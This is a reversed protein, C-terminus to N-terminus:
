KTSKIDEIFEKDPAIAYKKLSYEMIEKWVPASVSSAFKSGVQPDDIMVVLVFQPNSVPAFGAMFTRNRTKDYTWVFRNLEPKYERKEKDMTGTKAAVRFRDIKAKRGTGREVVQELMLAIAKAYEENFRREGKNVRNPDKNVYVSKYVGFNAIVMYARALQMATAKVGYGYGFQAHDLKSFGKNHIKLVGSPVDDSLGLETSVGIGLQKFWHEIEEPKLKQVIKSSAVNSSSVLTEMLTWSPKPSHDGITVGQIKFAHGDIPPENLTIKGSQLASLMVLPKVTSGVEYPQRLTNNKQKAFLKSNNDMTAPAQTMVLVEGSKADLLVAEGSTAGTNEMAQKLLEYSKQQLEIDLTLAINKSYKGPTQKTIEMVQGNSKKVVDIKSKKGSLLKEFSLFDGKEIGLKGVFEDNEKSVYGLVPAVSEGFPYLRKAKEKLNVAKLEYNKKDKKLIDVSEKDLMSLENNPFSLYRNGTKKSAQIQILSELKRPSLGIMASLKKINKAIRERYEKEKALFRSNELAFVKEKLEQWSIDIKIMAKLLKWYRESNVNLVMSPNFYRAFAEKDDLIVKQKDFPLKKFNEKDIDMETVNHWFDNVNLFFNGNMKLDLSLLKFHNKDRMTIKQYFYFPDIELLYYIENGALLEGNRDYIVGRHRSIEKTSQSSHIVSEQLSESRNVSVDYFKVLLILFLSLLCFWLFNYRIQLLYQNPIKNKSFPNFKEWLSFLKNM